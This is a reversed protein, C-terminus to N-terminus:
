VGTSSHVTYVGADVAVISPFLSQLIMKKEKLCTLEESTPQVRVTIVGEGKEDARGKIPMGIDKFRLENGNQVGEPIQVFCGEPFGPHGEIKTVCGLLSETLSIVVTTKLMSGDRSWVSDEDATQLEVIVDGAEKYGQVDSSAGNFVINEGPKMGAEIRIELNKHDKVFGSGTCDGCPAGKKKGEGQCAGCPGQSQMMMPGMQILQQVSGTGHCAACSQYTKSGEGKCGGCFKQRELHIQFVKGLYFDKLSLPLQTMRSPAKAQQQQQRKRGGGGGGLGGFLDRIDFPMGGGGGFPFPMGMGAFPNNMGPGGDDDGPIHGTQDYFGRKQDDSLVEYAGQIEKFREENGGKDPHETVVLKKYAKKIETADAGKKIGLVAYLDKGM